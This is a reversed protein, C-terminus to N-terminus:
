RAQYYAIASNIFRDIFHNNNFPERVACEYAQHLGQAFREPGWDAIIKVSNAAMRNREELSLRTIQIMILSIEDVKFPDFQFGNFGDRVLDYACGCRNSVLIPLGSAMAENVVLGWQESTSALIFADALAYYFPLDHYQKFGPYHVYPKLQLQETRSELAPRLPGDGLIVLHWPDYKAQLPSGNEKELAWKLYHSYAELLRLLNKKEIFRASSLFYHCPLGLRSRHENASLRVKAAQTKFYDNDVADYGLFVRSGPMGLMKVYEAQPTGGVLAASYQKVIKRKLWEYYWKRDADHVTSESMLIAPVRHRVCWQLAFLSEEMGWGPLVCATPAMETLVKTLRKNAQQKERVSGPLNDVIIHRDFGANGAISEWAYTTDGAAYEVAAVHFFSTAAKLRAFHYPGLRRFIVAIRKM